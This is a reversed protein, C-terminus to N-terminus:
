CLGEFYAGDWFFAEDELCWNDPAKERPKLSPIELTLKLPFFMHWSSNKILIKMKSLNFHIGGELVLLECRFISPQFGLKGKHGPRNKPAKATLKLSPLNRNFLFVDNKKNKKFSDRRDDEGPDFVRGRKRGLHFRPPKRASRRGNRLRGGSFTSWSAVHLCRNPDGSTPTDM